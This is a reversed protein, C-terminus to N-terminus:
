ARGNFPALAIDSATAFWDDADAGPDADEEAELDCLCDACVSKLGWPFLSRENDRVTGGCEDCVGSHQVTPDNYTV